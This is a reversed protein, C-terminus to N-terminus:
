RAGARQVGMGHRKRERCLTEIAFTLEDPKLVLFALRFDRGNREKDPRVISFRVDGSELRDVVLSTDDTRKRRALRQPRKGAIKPDSVNVEITVEHHKEPDANTSVRTRKSPPSTM